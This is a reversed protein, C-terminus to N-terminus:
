CDFLALPCGELSLTSLKNSGHSGWNMRHIELSALRSFHGPQHNLWVGRFFILSLWNPDHNNWIIGYQEWCLIPSFINWDHELWCWGTPWAMPDMLDMPHDVFPDEMSRGPPLQAPVPWCPASVLHSVFPSMSDFTNTTSGGRQFMNILWNPHNNGINGLVQSFLLWTGTVM